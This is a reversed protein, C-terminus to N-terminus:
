RLRCRPAPQRDEAQGYGTIAILRLSELPPRTRLRRALQYGDMGPLGIDLLAINPAFSEIRELAESGSHVAETEHGQFRLLMALSLAGDVNDDVILIRRSATQLAAAESRLDRASEFAVWPSVSSISVTDPQYVPYASELRKICTIWM